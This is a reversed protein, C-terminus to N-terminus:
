IKRKRRVATRSSMSLGPPSPRSALRSRKTGRNSPVATSNVKRQLRWEHSAAEPGLPSRGMEGVDGGLIESPGANRFKVTVRDQHDREQSPDVRERGQEHYRRWAKMVDPRDNFEAPILNIAMYYQADAPMHRTALLMRMIDLRRETTRRTKEIFLTIAVAFTPGVVIAGLTLCDNLKM